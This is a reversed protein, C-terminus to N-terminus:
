YIDRTTYPDDDDERYSQAEPSGSSLSDLNVRPIAPRFSVKQQEKTSTTAYTTTAGSIPRRQVVSEGMVKEEFEHQSMAQERRPTTSAPALHLSSPPPSTNYPPSIRPTVQQHLEQSLSSSTSLVQRSANLPPTSSRQNILQEMRHETQSHEPSSPMSNQLSTCGSSSGARFCSVASEEFRQKAEHRTAVWESLSKQQLMYTAIWICEHIHEESVKSEAFEYTSIIHCRFLLEMAERDDSCAERYAQAWSGSSCQADRFDMRKFSRPTRPTKVDDGPIEETEDGSSLLCLLLLAVCVMVFLLNTVLTGINHTSIHNFAVTPIQHLQNIADFSIPETRLAHLDLMHGGLSPQALSAHSTFGWNRLSSSLPAVFAAHSMAVFLFYPSPSTIDLKLFKLEGVVM